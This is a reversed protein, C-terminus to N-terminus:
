PLPAARPLANPPLFVSTASPALLCPPVRHARLVVVHKAHREQRRYRYPPAHTYAFRMRSAQVRSKLVQSPGMLKHGGWARGAQSGVDERSGKGLGQGLRLGMPSGLRRRATTWGEYLRRLGRNRERGKGGRTIVENFDGYRFRRQKGGERGQARSAHLRRRMPYSAM